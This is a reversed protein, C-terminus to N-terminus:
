SGATETEPAATANRRKSLRRVASRFDAAVSARLGGAVGRLGEVTVSERVRELEWCAREALVRADSLYIVAEEEGAGGAAAVMGRADRIAQEAARQTM